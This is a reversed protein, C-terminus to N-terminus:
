PKQLQPEREKFNFQRSTTVAWRFLHCCTGHNCCSQTELLSSAHRVGAWQQGTLNCGLLLLCCSLHAEQLSCCQQQMHLLSALVVSQMSHMM